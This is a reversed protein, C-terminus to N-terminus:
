SRGRGRFRGLRALVRESENAAPICRKVVRKFTSEKLLLVFFTIFQASRVLVDGIPRGRVAM